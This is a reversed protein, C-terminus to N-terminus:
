EVPRFCTPFIILSHCPHNGRYLERLSLVGGHHEPRRLIKQSSSTYNWFVVPFAPTLRYQYGSKGRTKVGYWTSIEPVGAFWRPVLVVGHAFDPVYVEEMEAGYKSCKMDTM